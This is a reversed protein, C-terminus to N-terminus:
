SALRTPLLPDSSRIHMFGPAMDRDTSALHTWASQLVWSLPHSLSQTRFRGPFQEPNKEGHPVPEDPDGGLVGPWLSNPAPSLPDHGVPLGGRTQCPGM